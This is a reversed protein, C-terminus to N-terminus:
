QSVWLNQRRGVSARRPRKECLVTKLPLRAPCMGLVTHEREQWRLLLMAGACARVRLSQCRNPRNARPYRIPRDLRLDRQNVLLLQQPRSKTTQKAHSFSKRCAIRSHTAAMFAHLCKSVRPVLHVCRSRSCIRKRDRDQAFNSVCRGSRSTPWLQISGSRRTLGLVKAALRRPPPRPTRRTRRSSLSAGGRTLCRCGGVGRGRELQRRSRSSGASM